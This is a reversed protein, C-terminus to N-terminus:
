FLHIPPTAIRRGGIPISVRGTAMDLTRDSQGNDNQDELELGSRPRGEGNGSITNNESVSRQRSISGDPPMELQVTGNGILDSGKVVLTCNAQSIASIGTLSNNSINCNTLSAVGQELYVGSHGRAIGRRNRQNGNGNHIVDSDEVTAASGPGGVYIGTAACNLIRCKRITALGGDIAVIGRGSFSSLTTNEIIATPMRDCPRPMIPRNDYFRPQVQIVTNGNWIDIGACDHVLVVNSVKLTGQTVHFVPANQNRTKIVITAKDIISSSSSSESFSQILQASGDYDEVTANSAGSASRCTFINRFNGRSNFRRRSPTHNNNDETYADSGNGNGTGTNAGVGIGSFSPRTEVYRYKHFSPPQYTEIAFTSEGYTHVRIYDDLIHIGPNMLIRVNNSFEFRKQRKSYSGTAHVADKLSPYDLPVIPNNSYFDRWFHDNHNKRRNHIENHENYPNHRNSLIITDLDDAGVDDDVDMFDNSSEDDSDTHIAHDSNDDSDISGNGCHENEHGHQDHGHGHGRGYENEIMPEDHIESDWKRYDECLTRFVGETLCIDRWTKNVKSLVQHKQPGAFSLVKPIIDQPADNQLWTLINQKPKSAPLTTVVSSSTLTSSPSRAVGIASTSASATASISCDIGQHQDQHQNQNLHTNEYHENDNDNRHISKHNGEDDSDEMKKYMRHKNRYGSIRNSNNSKNSHLSNGLNNNNNNSNQHNQKRKTTRTGKILARRPSDLFQFVKQATSRQTNEEDINNNSHNIHSTHNIDINSHNSNTLVELNHNYNHYHNDEELTNQNLVSTSTSTSTSASALAPSHINTNTNSHL